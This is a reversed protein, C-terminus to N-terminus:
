SSRGIFARSEVPGTSGQYRSRLEPSGYPHECRSLLPSVVLQAIQMGLTLWRDPLSGVILMELTLEGLWGADVVGTPM